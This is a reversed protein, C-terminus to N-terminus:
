TWVGRLTGTHASRCRTSRGSGSSDTSIAGQSRRGVVPPHWSRGGAVAPPGFRAMQRRTPYRDKEISVVRDVGHVGAFALLRDISPRYAGGFALDRVVPDDDFRNLTNEAERFPQLGGQALNFRFGTEAQWILADDLRPYIVITQGPSICQKYIGRTFFAM